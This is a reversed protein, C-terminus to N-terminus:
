STPGQPPGLRRSTAGGVVRLARKALKRSRVIHEAWRTATDFEAREADALLVAADMAMRMAGVEADPTSAAALAATARAEWEDVAEQLTMLRHGLATTELCALALEVVLLTLADPGGDACDGRAAARGHSLPPVTAHTRM